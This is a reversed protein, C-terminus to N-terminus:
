RGQMKHKRQQNLYPHLRNLARLQVHIVQLRLTKHLKLIEYLSSMRRKRAVKNIRSTRSHKIQQHM